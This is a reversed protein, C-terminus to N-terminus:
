YYKRYFYIFQVAPLLNLPSIIGYGKSALKEAMDVSQQYYRNDEKTRASGFITVCPGTRAMRDYGEVFEAMIKFIAWSNESKIENWNRHSFKDKIKQDDSM